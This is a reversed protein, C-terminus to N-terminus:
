DPSSRGPPPRAGSKSLPAGTTRGVGRMWREISEWVRPIAGGTVLGMHSPAPGGADARTVRIVERPGACCGVFREGCVPVCEFRDGSSTVELVPVRVKAIAELYDVRGDRSAWRGTGAFRDFDECAALSEDDSGLRLARAPFRGYRRALALMSALAARKVMWRARSPEHDRLFPPASAIGAVADVAISGSGQAALATHGGLSHGIVIVPRGEGGGADALERAFACVAPLDRRVLDDYGFPATRAALTALPPPRSDGHGRFDFAVVRWGRGALLSAIGAGSPRSFETRRAMAAHALVAVGAIEGADGPSVVDARLSWGDATRLDISEIAFPPPAASRVPAGNSRPPTM